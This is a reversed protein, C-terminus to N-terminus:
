NLDHIQVDVANDESRIEYRKEPKGYVNVLQHNTTFSNNEIYKDDDFMEFEIDSAHYEGWNDVQEKCIQEVNKILTLKEVNETDDDPMVVFLYDKARSVAVNVINLNNLFM